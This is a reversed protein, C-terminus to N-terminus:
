RGVNAAIKAIGDELQGNGNSLQKAAPLSPIEIFERGQDCFAVQRL